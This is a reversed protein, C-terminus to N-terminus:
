RSAGDSLALDILSQTDLDDLDDDDEDEDESGVAAAAVAAAAAPAAAPVAPGAAGDLEALGLLVEYVGAARLREVPISGFARRLAAVEDPDGSPGDAAAEPVFRERLHAALEAPNPYDFVVTAPLRLGSATALRNRLEVTTLSDFGMNQFPQNPGIAGAGAHGLVTAALGRVLDEFVRQAGGADLGALRASLVAPGDHAAAAASRPAGGGGPGGRGGPGALANLISPLEEGQARLAGRDLRIPVLIPAALDLATDFLALGEETSLGLVGARAMRILDTQPLEGSMGREAWMGWALSQGALGRARRHAALADLFSNASAYNAQGPAGWTGAASSFLVFAALDLHATLEHLHWAVDAKPRLVTDMRGPNLSGLVGDDLVGACHVVGTLPRDAPVSALLAALAAPDAADCAELRVEAGLGSLEAVLEAAGPGDPGRRSVLLLSEVGHATVLHRAILGGLVGTGGTLLVTGASLERGAAPDPWVTDGSPGLSDAARALRPVLLRDGRVAVQHEDLALAAALAATRGAEAAAAESGPALAEDLDILMARGPNEVEATRVLGWVAAAALDTVAPDAPGTAMACRTVVVLRSGDLLEEDLWGQVLALMRHVAAHVGAIGPEDDAGPLCPVVVLEPAQAGAALAARLAALDAHVEGAGSPELAAAIGATDAGVVAWRRAGRNPQEAPDAPIWNLVLLSDDASDAVPQPAPRVALSEASFVPAGTGDACHVGVAGGEAPRVRVRLAGAGRAHVAMEGWSFPVMPPGDVAETDRLAGAHLASDLLAPHVAFGDTQAGEPLAVEAFVEEGRRWAARLGQFVPGYRLGSAALAPYVESVDLQEAGQPPWVALDTFGDIGAEALRGSAHRLWEASSPADAARSYVAVPRRGDAEAAGVRVQVARAATTRGPEDPGFVLPAELILEEVQGCGAREGATLALDAFATGPLLVQGSVVHDALWPFADLSLRGTLVWGQGDALATGAGLFPHEVPELGTDAVDRATDSLLWYRRRQFPYTPLDTTGTGPHFTTWDVTTGHTHLAALATVASQEEPRNKRLTPILAQDGDTTSHAAMATLVADPGLEVLRTAGTTTLTTVADAFRVSERVQRVWYEPDSLEGEAATKGTLTSVVPVTPEHYTLTAAVTRFEQLMPEMLASHFAHSVTLAKTREFGAAVKAVAETDGSVVVARPGNVAAIDVGPVLAARVEDETAVIATMAGGTPLAQMLRARAAVLTCADELSWVGAAHAAALEGISHGAVYDPTVGWSAFLRLLATEVAFLACQAYGTQDLLGEESPSWMVDKLPRELGKDLIACVEDLAAAFVPFARSLEEGMGVRQSGQGTFLFATRGAMHTGHVIGPADTGTALATLGALVEERGSGVVVARQEFHTRATALSRGILPLEDDSVDEFRDLLLGAQARLAAPTRASVPWVVVGSPAQVDGEDTAAAEEVIVHANTGSLGFASVGARRVREGAPWAVEDTLLRVGGRSWDVHSSPADVHLTRPLVGHRMAMVMKIVGAVGAAAQTHGFNSKVSGLWLPRDEARERGYTALLAQAEIPDGLTTGTGHAEVADVDGTGLGADALAARIVRQQAPGNPVSFGSSAGDQNVASGRIVALVPHGNRRADSLRELLLMGAGESCGVGDAADAFAKCRGDPALGRQESFYVFMDPETMVTVGGALALTCEGRRLAQAALHLGVLSSSCATDVSVAPGELGLTYSVRGSILSGDSSGPGYDHYMVGAYVGTASGRLTGPRIGARELAEWSVELLLRQQPDMGLAERPSIGFFEADFEGAGDVFGGDLSYTTGPTYAADRAASGPEHLRGLDWGRDGPFTGVADVGGAVLRWLGEPSTVGGPFRCGMGIIAVPEDQAATLRDNERRLVANDLVAQRLAAVIRETSESESM